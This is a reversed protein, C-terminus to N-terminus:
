FAGPGGNKPPIVTNLESEKVPQIRLLGQAIDFDEWALFAHSLWSAGIGFSPEQLPLQRQLARLSAWLYCSGWPVGAQKETSVDAQLLASFLGELAIIVVLFDATNLNWAHQWFTLLGFWVLDKCPESYASEWPHGATVVQGNSVPWKM